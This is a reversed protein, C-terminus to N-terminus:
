PETGFSGIPRTFWRVVGVSTRTNCRIKVTGWGGGGGGGGDDRGTAGLEVVMAATMIVLLLKGNTSFM